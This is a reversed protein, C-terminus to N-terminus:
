YTITSVTSYYIKELLDERSHEMKMEINENSERLKPNQLLFASKWTNILLIPSQYARLNKM